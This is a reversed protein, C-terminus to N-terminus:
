YFLAKFASCVRTAQEQAQETTAHTTTFTQIFSVMDKPKDVQTTFTHMPKGGRPEDDNVFENALQIFGPLARLEHDLKPVYGLDLEIEQGIKAIALRQALKNLLGSSGASAVPVLPKAVGAPVTLIQLLHMLSIFEDPHEMCWTLLAKETDELLLAARYCAILKTEDRENPKGTSVLIRFVDNVVMTATPMGPWKLLTGLAWTPGDRGLLSVPAAAITKSRKLPPGKPETPHKKNKVAAPKPPAPNPPAPTSLISTLNSSVTPKPPLPAVLSPPAQVVPQPAQIVPSPAQVVPPDAVYVAPVAAAALLKQEHAARRRERKRQLQEETAKKVARVPPEPASM